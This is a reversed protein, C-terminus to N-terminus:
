IEITEKLRIDEASAGVLIEFEGAEAVFDKKEVDYFAFDRESLGITVKKEEGPQLAVKAFGKLEKLPRDVSAEKDTVYVQVVEAGAMKGTNQVTLTVEANKGNVAM